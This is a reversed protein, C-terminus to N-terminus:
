WCENFLSFTQLVDICSISAIWAVHKGDWSLDEVFEGDKIDSALLCQGGERVGLATKGM